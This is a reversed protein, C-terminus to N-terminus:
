HAHGQDDESGKWLKDQCLLSTCPCQATELEITAHSINFTQRLYAKIEDILSLGASLSSNPEIVLHCSLAVREPTVSWVHLDHLSCVGPLTKVFALLPEAQFDVPTGEMLIHLTEKVIRWAGWAVLFAILVSLIPDIIYWHTVQMVVGGLIVGASAAADGLVHLLASRINLNGEGGRFGLAIGLNVLIGVGASIYMITSQVPEPHQLRHFAEILIILAIVILTVSNALAALIGTRHYGFTHKLTPSKQAQVAAFWALGLAAVDTLVHGADSLLALSNALSGGIVEVALIIMTAWFAWKLRDGSAHVHGGLGGHKHSHGDEHNHSHEHDHKYDDKHDPATAIMKGESM